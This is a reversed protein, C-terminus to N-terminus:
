AAVPSAVEPATLDVVALERVGGAPIAGVPLRGQALPVGTRKDRVSWALEAATFDADSYHAFCIKQRLKDGSTVIRSESPNDCLVCDPSNFVAFSEPTHGGPKVGWVHDNM